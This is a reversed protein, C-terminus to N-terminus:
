VRYKDINQSLRMFNVICYKNGKIILEQKNWVLSHYWFEAIYVIQSILETLTAMTPFRIM